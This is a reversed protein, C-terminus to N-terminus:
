LPPTSRFFRTLLPHFSFPTEQSQHSTMEQAFSTNKVPYFRVLLTSLNSKEHENLTNPSDKSILFNAELLGQSSV